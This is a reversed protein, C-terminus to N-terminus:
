FVLVNGARSVTEVMPPLFRIILRRIKPVAKEFADAMEPGTCNGRTLSFVYAGSRMVADVELQRKRIWKDKTLIVWGNRAATPLWLHDPADAAFHRDHTHVVVGPISGLRGAVVRNGLCRDLFLHLDKLQELKSSADSRKRFKSLSGAM